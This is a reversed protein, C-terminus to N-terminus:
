RAHRAIVGDPGALPEGARGDFQWGLEDWGPFYDYVLFGVFGADMAAVLKNEVAAARAQFSPGSSDSLEVATAGAFIAKSLAATIAAAESYGPPLVQEPFTFDHVDALDIAAHQHLRSYNSGDASSTAPSSGNDLGLAILHNPDRERVLASMGASFGDLPAFSEGRAEHMLEWGLLTPEDRFHEVVGAVYDRYSLTYSGYPSLYGSGYWADDRQGGSSCDAWHNELVFILRVGARRAAAVVRDFSSYDTGSAGAFSQFAWIKLVDARMAALEDFTRVLAQAHDPLSGVQCGDPDWAIGWSVAGVFTYPADRLWLTQGIRRVFPDGGRCIGAACSPDSASCGADNPQFSCGHQTDARCDLETSWVGCPDQAPALEERIPDSYQTGCAPLVVVGLWLWSRLTM